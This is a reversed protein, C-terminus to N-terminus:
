ELTYKKAEYPIAFLWFKIYQWSEMGTSEVLHPNFINFFLFFAGFFCVKLKSCM